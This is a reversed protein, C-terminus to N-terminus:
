DFPLFCLCRIIEQPHGNTEFVYIIQNIVKSLSQVLPSNYPPNVSIKPQVWVVPNFGGRSPEKSKTKERCAFREM